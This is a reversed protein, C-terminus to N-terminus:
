GERHCALVSMHDHLIEADHSLAPLRRRQKDCCGACKGVPELDDYAPGSTDADSNWLQSVADTANRSATFGADVAGQLDEDTIFDQVALNDALVKFLVTNNMCAELDEQTPLGESTSFSYRLVVALWQSPTLLKRKRDPPNFTWNSQLSVQIDSVPYNASLNFAGHLAQSVKALVAADTLSPVARSDGAMLLYYPGPGPIPPEDDSHNLLM